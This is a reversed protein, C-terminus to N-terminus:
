FGLIGHFVPPKQKALHGLLSTPFLQYWSKRYDIETPCGGGLFFLTAPPGLRQNGKSVNVGFVPIGWGGVVPGERVGPGRPRKPISLGRRGGPGHRGGGGRFNGRCAFLRHGHKNRAILLSHPRPGGTSLNSYTPVLKKRYIKNPSGWPNIGVVRKM